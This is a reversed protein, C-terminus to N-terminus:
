ANKMGLEMTRINVDIMEPKSAFEDKIVERMLDASFLGGHKIYAGLAAMNSNRECGGAEVALDVMNLYVVKIDTRTSKNDALSSNVILVGGAKVRPEFKVFAPKTMVVCIDPSAVIPSAVQKDSVVVSCNCTGGRMEPGYAPFWTVQKNTRNAAQAVFIGLSLVGQGGFGAMILKQEM